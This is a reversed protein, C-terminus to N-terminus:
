DIALGSLRRTSTWWSESEVTGIECTSYHRFSSWPWEEPKEVLGRTVPSRHIYKSKETHKQTTFVNFDYHRAQWFPRERRQVAISLKLAQIAKSLLCKKPETVLLHVHGARRRLRFRSLRLPDAYGRAFTRFPQM